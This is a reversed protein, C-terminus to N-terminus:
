ARARERASVPLKALLHSRLQARETFRQGCELCLRLTLMLATGDLGRAPFTESFCSRYERSGCDVCMESMCARGFTHPLM